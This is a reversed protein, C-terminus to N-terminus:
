MVALASHELQSELTWVLSQGSLVVVTPSSVESGAAGGVRHAVLYLGGPDTAFRSPISLTRTTSGTVTGLRQRMRGHAAYIIVDSTNHNEIRVSISEARRPAAVDATTANPGTEPAPAPVPARAACAVLMCTGVLSSVARAFTSSIRM